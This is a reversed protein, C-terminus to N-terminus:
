CHHEIYEEFSEFLTQGRANRIRGVRTKLIKEQLHGVLDDFRHLPIDSLSAGFQKKIAAYVVPYKMQEKGVDSEKLEHYLRVLEKCYRLKNPETAISDALPARPPLKKGKTKYVIDRGAVVSGSVPGNIVVASKPPPSLDPRHPTAPQAGKAALVAGLPITGAHIKAHCTPCAALLNKVDDTGGKAAEVIHHPHLISIDDESCFSCRNGAEHIVRRRKFDSVAKRRPPATM